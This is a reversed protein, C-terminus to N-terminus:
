QQIIHIGHIDGGEIEVQELYEFGQVLFGTGAARCQAQPHRLRGDTRCQPAQTLHIAILQEHAGAATQRWRQPGVLQLRHEALGQVFAPLAQCHDIRRGVLVVAAGHGQPKRIVELDGVTPAQDLFNGPAGGPQPQNKTLGVALDDGLRQHVAADVQRDGGTSKGLAQEAALHQPLAIIQAQCVREAQNISLLADTELLEDCAFM